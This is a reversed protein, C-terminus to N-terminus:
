VGVVVLEEQLTVHFTEFVKQKMMQMLQLVDHATAKGTNVIFNAHVSSVAADGVHMQKGGAHDILFGASRTQNPTGAAIADAQSINKFACGATKVGQPQTSRRYAISENARKWIEDKAQRTLEFVVGLVLEGSEQIVSKGYSFHFYEKPKTVVTNTADLLVVQSVVDGVYAPPKTWKSNMFIAGGVSGPLGLHMELGALGEEITFRVLSNFPTGADAEVYVSGNQEGNKIVGKMGRITIANTANKIVLGRFGADSILINSGGGLVFYPIGSTRAAILASVFEERTKAEFFYDAPGGIKFTTYLALPENIKVRMGMQKQWSTFDDTM